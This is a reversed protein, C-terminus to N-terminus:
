GSAVENTRRTRPLHFSVGTRCSFISGLGALRARRERLHKRRRVRPCPLSAVLLARDSVQSIRVTGHASPGVGLARPTYCSCGWRFERRWIARMRRVHRLHADDARMRVPAGEVRAAGASATRVVAVARRAPAVGAFGAHGDRRRRPRFMVVHFALNNASRSAGPRVPKRRTTVVRAM